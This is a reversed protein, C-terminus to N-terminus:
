DGIMKMIRDYRGGGEMVGEKRKQEDRIEYVIGKYYDIKSGLYEDYIIEKMEIGEKEIEDEREELKKLVEGMEMENDEELERMKVEEKDIQVRIEIFKRMIDIEEENFNKEEIDEKEIIRREIEVNKRGEGKQIGEEMMEDEMMSEIGIEDGEEVMVEIRENMKDRRKKGKMEEIEM